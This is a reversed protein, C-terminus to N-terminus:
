RVSRPIIGSRQRANYWSWWRDRPVLWQLHIIELRDVLDLDGSSVPAGDWSLTDDLFYDLVKEAARRNTTGAIDNLDILCEIETPSRHCLELLTKIPTSGCSKLKEVPCKRIEEGLRVWCVLWNCERDTVKESNSWVNWADDGYQECFAAYNYATYTSDWRVVRLGLTQNGLGNPMGCAHLSTVGDMPCRVLVEITRATISLVSRPIIGSRQRANHWSWWRDRPVLWQLHIIELRDVLDLDGSSVPAGDWSLTDDLFYDLVKEAARRNTTGAIDNLDILCEIETPSRHCLELLTKIPTSGCSKLKEVPCKRIEEGLRVWCM